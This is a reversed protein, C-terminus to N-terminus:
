DPLVLIFEFLTNIVKFVFGVKVKELGVSMCFKMVAVKGVPTFGVTYQACLFEGFKSVNSQKSSYGEPTGFEM